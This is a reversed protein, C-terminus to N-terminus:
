GWLEGIGKALLDVGLILLLVIMVTANNHM